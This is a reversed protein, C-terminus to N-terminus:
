NDHVPLPDFGRAKRHEQIEKVLMYNELVLHVLMAPLNNMGYKRILNKAEIGAEKQDQETPIPREYPQTM